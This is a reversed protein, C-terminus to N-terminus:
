CGSGKVTSDDVSVNGWGEDAADWVARTRFPVSDGEGMM